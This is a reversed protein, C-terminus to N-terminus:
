WAHHTNVPGTAAALLHARVAPVWKLAQLLGGAPFLVVMVPVAVRHPIWAHKCQAEHSHMDPGVCYLM